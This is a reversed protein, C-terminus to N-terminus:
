AASKSKTKSEIPKYFNNQIESKSILDALNDQIVKQNEAIQTVCKTLQELFVGLRDSQIIDRQNQAEISTKMAREMIELNIGQNQFFQLYSDIIQNQSNVAGILAGSTSVQNKVTEVMSEIQDKIILLYEVPFVENINNPQSEQIYETKISDILTKALNEQQSKM